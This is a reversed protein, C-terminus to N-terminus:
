QHDPMAPPPRRPPNVFVWDALGVPSALADELQGRAQQLSVRADLRAVEVNALELQLGGLELRSIDGAAFQRDAASEQRARDAFMSDATAVKALASEYAALSGDIEEIARSQVRTFMAAATERRAAAEAIPGSNRNFAPLAVGLGLTWKHEAQDMQYGPGLHIDPYQRAIELQLSAQAAEYEQLSGLIDPRNLLAQRRADALPMAPPADEFATYSLPISDLAHGTVGMAAALAARGVAQQSRADYVALRVADQAMRAQTVEFSSVAGAARQRELLAVNRQLITGRQELLTEIASAAFLDLLVRRVRSRVQWAVSAITFRAADSRRQAQAIRHGRKGGTEITFALDLSLIWPTIQSVPSTSNYGPAVSADPNVRLGATVVAARAEAWHGRAVDLDPHYFFAALTLAHLDWARPPWASPERNAAFFRALEPDNLRRSELADLAAPPSVPQPTFHACGAVCWAAVSVSVRLSWAFIPRVPICGTAHSRM